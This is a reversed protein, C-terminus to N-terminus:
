EKALAANMTTSLEKVVDAVTRKGSFAQPLLDKEADNWEATNKSVPYPHAYKVADLFVQLDFHPVSAVFASQTGNYAPIAAKLRAQTTQAEKSGLYVQFAQAAAMNKSKSAVVNAIGGSNTAQKSGIPLPAVDIDNTNASAALVPVEWSGSWYFASKGSTFWVEPDTDSLQQVSPSSGNAVLNVWFQLGKITEPSDYGSKKGDASIITGGAQLITDYYGSNGGTLETAVGYIGKAQLKDSVTKAATDFDDWTWGATPPEVGAQKLIAKNYWLAITDFDRPVGYQIGKQIYPANLVAPYNAPDIKKQAILKTVPELQANAAYLQLHPSNMWFVDPLTSSSAQTQLKTWYQAWPTLAVTVKIKPYTKNFDAINKNIAPLQNEDWVGYTISASTDATVAGSKADDSAGSSGCATLSMVAALALPALRTIRKM